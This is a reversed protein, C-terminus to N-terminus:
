LELEELLELLEESSYLKLLEEELEDELKTSVGELEEDELLEESPYLKLESDLEEDELLEESPYLKLESDLELLEEPAVGAGLSPIPIISIPLM